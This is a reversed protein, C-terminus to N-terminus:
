LSQNKHVAGLLIILKANGLNMSKISQNTNKTGSFHQMKKESYYNM